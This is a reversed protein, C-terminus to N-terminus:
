TLVCKKMDHLFDPEVKVFLAHRKKAVKLLERLEKEAFKEPRQLKILSFFALPRVRISGVSQWGITELYKGWEKSQRIMTAM